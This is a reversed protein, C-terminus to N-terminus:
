RFVPINTVSKKKIISKKNNPRLLLRFMKQKARVFEKTTIKHTKPKVRLNKVMTDM